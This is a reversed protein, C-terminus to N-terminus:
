TLREYAWRVDVPDIPPNRFFDFNGERMLTVLVWHVVAKPRRSKLCPPSSHTSLTLECVPVATMRAGVSGSGQRRLEQADDTRGLGAPSAAVHARPV